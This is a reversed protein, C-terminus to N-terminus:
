GEVDNLGFMFLLMIVVVKFEVIGFNFGREWGMVEGEGLFGCFRFFREM